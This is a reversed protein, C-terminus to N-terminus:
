WLGSLQKEIAAVVISDLKDRTEGQLEVFRLGMGSAFDEEPFVREMRWTVEGTLELVDDEEGGLGSVHLTPRAGIELLTEAAVFAGGRSLNVLRARYCGDDLQLIACAQSPVRIRNWDTLHQRIERASLRPSGAQATLGSQSMLQEFFTNLDEWRKEDSSALTGGRRIRTDSLAGFENILDLVTRM